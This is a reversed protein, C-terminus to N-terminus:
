LKERLQETLIKYSNREDLIFGSNRFVVMLYKDSFEKNYKLHKFEFFAFDSLKYLKGFIEAAITFKNNKANRFIYLFYTENFTVVKRCIMTEPIVEIGLNYSIKNMFHKDLNKAEIIKMKSGVTGRFNKEFEYSKDNINFRIDSFIESGLRYIYANEINMISLKKRVLTIAKSNYSVLYLYANLGETGIFMFPKGFKLNEPKNSSGNDFFINSHIIDVMLDKYKIYKFYPDKFATDTYYIKQDEDNKCIFKSDDMYSNSINLEGMVLSSMLEYVKSNKVNTSQKLSITSM